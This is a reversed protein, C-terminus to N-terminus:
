AIPHRTAPSIFAGSSSIRNSAGFVRMKERVCEKAAERAPGFLTRIDVEDPKAAIVARLQSVFGEKIYTAVNIKTVGNEIAEALCEHKVGSAGHLVLPIRVREYIAKIRPIDLDAERGRMQHISGVAVALADCGTRKVFDLAQDPDTMAAAVQEPSAGVQLVQGLEAELPVGAIHAIEAIKATKAVNEEYPLRSGDFMLSTFGERLCQLNQEFGTGHDLHLVVPVDVLTAAIKVMGAIMALGAYGINKPGLQLIVPACEEKATDIIAQMVEMNDANFSGVAFRNQRAFELVVKGNVLPM